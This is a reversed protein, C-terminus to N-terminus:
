ILLKQKQQILQPGMQFESLKLFEGAIVACGVKMDEKSGDTYIHKYDM